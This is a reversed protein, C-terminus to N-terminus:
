DALEEIRERWEVLKQNDPNAFSLKQWYEEALARDKKMISLDIILDLYRPSLPELELAARINELAAELNDNEKELEALCFHIEQPTVEAEQNLASFGAQGDASAEKKLALKLSYAYTERAEMWKKEQKYLEALLFFAALNQQDLNIVALFKEEATELEEKKLAEEGEAVLKRIQKDKDFRSMKLAAQYNFKIKKLKEQHFKLTGGLRRSLWLWLRGFLGSVAALDREVRSKILQEKFKSEKEGPLNEVDLIALAPFKRVIIMLIIILAISILILPLVFSM